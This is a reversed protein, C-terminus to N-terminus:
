HLVVLGGFYMLSGTTKHLMPLIECFELGRIYHRLSDVYIIVYIIVHIIVYIIVHITVYCRSGAATATAKFRIASFLISEPGTINGSM